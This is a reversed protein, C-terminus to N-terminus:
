ELFTRLLLPRACAEEYVKEREIVIIEKFSRKHHGDM